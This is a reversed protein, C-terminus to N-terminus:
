GTFSELWSDFGSAAHFHLREGTYPHDFGIEASHLMLRESKNLTMEPAYFRDGVIPHGIHMLHVRLQHSRGTKPTLSVLSLGMYHHLTEYQTESPKGASHVIHRLKRTSDPMLPELVQGDAATTGEVVAEYRKSITRNQFQIKLAREANKRLAFVMIGSTDMDLRHVVRALPWEALIRTFLSDQVSPGRGPVSLLGSPKVVCLVDKDQHVINLPGTPPAYVFEGDSKNDM